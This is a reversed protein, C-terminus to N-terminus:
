EERIPSYLGMEVLEEAERRGPAQGMMAWSRGPHPTDAMSTTVLTGSVSPYGKLPPQFASQRWCGLARVVVIPARKCLDYVVCRCTILSIVPTGDRPCGERAPPM